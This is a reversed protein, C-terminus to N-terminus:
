KKFHIKIKKVALGWGGGGGGASLTSSLSSFTDVAL